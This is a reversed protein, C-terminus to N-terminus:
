KEKRRLKERLEDQMKQSWVLKEGSYLEDAWITEHKANVYGVVRVEENIHRALIMQSVNTIVYYNAKVPDVVLVFVDDQAAMADEMGIPCVKNQMVCAKGQISGVLTIKEKGYDALVPGSLFAACVAGVFLLIFLKKM